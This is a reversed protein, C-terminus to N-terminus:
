DETEHGEELQAHQQQAEDIEEKSFEEVIEEIEERLNRTRKTSGKGKRRNTICLQQPPGNYGGRGM